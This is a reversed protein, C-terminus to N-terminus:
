GKLTKVARAIQNPGFYFFIVAGVIPTLVEAAEFCLKGWKADLRFLGVCALLLLLYVVCFMVALIRRTVSRVSTEDRFAVQSDVWAKFAAQSAQSREEETFFMVDIGSAASKLLDAGTDVAKDAAKSGGLLWGLM